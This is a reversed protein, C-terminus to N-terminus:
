FLYRKAIENFLYTVTVSNVLETYPKLSISYSSFKYLFIKINNIGQAGKINIFLTYLKAPCCIFYFSLGNEQVINPHVASCLLHSPNPCMSREGKFLPCIKALSHVPGLRTYQGVTFEM